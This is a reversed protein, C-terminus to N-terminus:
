FSKEKKIAANLADAVIKKLNKNEFVNIGEATIGEPSTVMTRLDKPSIGTKLLESTGIITNIIATQAQEKPIGYKIGADILAELFLAIFAPSSGSLPSMAPMSTEPITLTTGVSSFIAQVKTIDKESLENSFSLATTGARVLVPINPMARAIKKTQLKNQLYEIKIGAAISVIIEDSTIEQVIEDLVLSMNQPKVALIIVDSNKAIDQNSKTTIDYTKELYNRRKELIDSAIIKNPTNKKIGAILAEAMKGGGIFGIIM